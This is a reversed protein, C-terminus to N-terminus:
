KETPILPLVTPREGDKAKAMHSRGEFFGGEAISLRATFIEGWVQGKPMIGASESAHISGEVKGGVVIGRAIVDGQISGSEGVIVWDAEVSGELAGDIRVTGTSHLEGHVTSGVGIVTTLTTERKGFM